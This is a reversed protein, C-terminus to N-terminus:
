TESKSKRWTKLMIRDVVTPALWEAFIGAKGAATLYRNRKPRRVSHLLVAAVEESTMGGSQSIFQSPRKGHAAGVFETQTVGPNVVSVSIREDRLEVRLSESLGELAFKSACYAGMAPVARRGVFSSVMIVAAGWRKRSNSEAAIRLLPLAAQTCRIVGFYNTEMVSRFTDLPMREVSGYAGFGANNVLVDLRGFKDRVRGFAAAVSADFTVDCVIPEMRAQPFRARAENAIAELKELRRACLVVDYGAAAFTNVAAAGIGSSAGTILVVARNEVSAPM